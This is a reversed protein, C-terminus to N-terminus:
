TSSCAQCTHLLLAAAGALHLATSLGGARLAREGAARQRGSPAAGGSGSGGDRAGQAGGPRQGARRRGPLRCGATCRSARIVCAPRLSKGWISAVGLGRKCNCAGTSVEKSRERYVAYPNHGAALLADFEAAELERKQVQIQRNYPPVCAIAVASSLVLQQPQRQTGMLTSAVPQLM